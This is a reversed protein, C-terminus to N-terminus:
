IFKQGDITWIIEDINIFKKVIHGIIRIPLLLIINILLAYLKLM